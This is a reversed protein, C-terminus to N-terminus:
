AHRAGARRGARAALFRWQPLRVDAMGVTASTRTRNEPSAM